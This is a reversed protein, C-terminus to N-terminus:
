IDKKRFTLLGWIVSVATILLGVLWYKGEVAAVQNMYGQLNDELLTSPFYVTLKQLDPFPRLLLYALNGSFNYVLLLLVITLGESINLISLVYGMAFASLIIPIMNSAAYFFNRLTNEEFPLLNQGLLVMLGAALLCLLTFCGLTLLLKSWFIVNRSIGFAVSQKVIEMDKGTLLISFLFGILILLSGMAIVNSYFFSASAYRFSDDTRYYYSLIVGLGAVLALCGGCLAYLWKTHLMRYLESHLYNIM